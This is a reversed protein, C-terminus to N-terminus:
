TLIFDYNREVIKKWEEVVEDTPPEFFSDKEEIWQKSQELVLLRTDANPNKFELDEIEDFLGDDGMLHYLENCATRALLPKNILNELEKVRDMNYPFSWCGM